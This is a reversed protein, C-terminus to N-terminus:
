KKVLEELLKAEKEIRQPWTELVQGAKKRANEGLKKVLDDDDLLKNLADSVANIDGKPVLVADEQQTLVEKIADTETTVICKGSSMAEWMTNTCNHLKSLFIFIDAANLMKKIMAHDVIGLFIVKSTINNDRAFDELKKKETGGGAVLYVCKPHKKFVDVLAALVSDVAYDPRLRCTSVIIKLGPDINLQKCIDEKALSDLDFMNKDIGNRWLKINEDKVGLKRALQDGHTGDNTIVFYDAPIKFALYDRFEKIRYAWNQWWWYLQRTGYVRIVLKTRFFISVLFAPFASTFSHAYILDPKLKYAVQLGRYFAFVQFFLWHFNSILSAKLRNARIGSQIYAVKERNFPFNFRRINIGCYVENKAKGELYPCLFYVTYGRAAFGKQSAFISPIGKNEGWPWIEMNAISLIKM